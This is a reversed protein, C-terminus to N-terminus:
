SSGIKLILLIEWPILTGFNSESKFLLPFVRLQFPQFAKQCFKLIIHLKLILNFPKKPLYWYTLEKLAQINLIFLAYLQHFNKKSWFWFWNVFTKSRGSDEGFEKRFPLCVQTSEWSVKSKTFRSDFKSYHFSQQDIDM